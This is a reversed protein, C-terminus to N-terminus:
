HLTEGKELMGIFKQSLRQRTEENKATALRWLIAYRNVRSITEFFAKAKPHRELERQFEPSMEAKAPSPYAKQWRGDQKAREVEAYGSPRMRGSESLSVAKERNIQSWLSKPRRPLFRQLYTTDSEPLRLADIWGYCLASELAEPHTVSRIGSSKKAFRIWIGETKDYNTDLWTEFETQSKFARIPKPATKARKAKVRPGASKARVVRKTAGAKRTPM